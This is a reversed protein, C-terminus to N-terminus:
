KKAPAAAAGGAPAAAGAPPASKAAAKAGAAPKDGQKKLAGTQAMMELLNSYIWGHQLKGDATPQIIDVFHWNTVPKNTGPLFPGLAGKQTGSLTHEVIAFGDIGWANTVTWKQDPFSKFWDTLGKALEKKGKMAPGGGFSLWVDADDAYLAQAAKADDKSFADDTAKALDVLKDEDPGGKAVHVQPPNTPLAPVAPAGKKGAIQAMVGAGDAYQHIEKVLGDDNFWMIHVRQGGVPKNTAKMGKFDATFTGTWTLEMIAVNDKIWIRTAATKIDPFGTFLDTYYGQVDGKSHTEGEGYAISTADDTFYSAMKQADHANFADAQGKLTQPIVESLAPKAPPPPATPAPPATASATTPPPPPAPPPQPPPAEGGCAALALSATILAAVIKTRM